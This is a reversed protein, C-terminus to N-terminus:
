NQEPIGNYSLFLTLNLGNKCSEFMKNKNWKIYKMLHSTWYKAQTWLQMTGNYQWLISHFISTRHKKVNHTVCKSFNLLLYYCNPLKLIKTGHLRAHVKIKMFKPWKRLIKNYAPNYAMHGTIFEIERM